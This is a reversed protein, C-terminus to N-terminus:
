NSTPVSDFFLARSCSRCVYTLSIGTNTATVSVVDYADANVSVFSEDNTVTAVVVLVVVSVSRHISKVSIHKLLTINPVIIIPATSPLASTM